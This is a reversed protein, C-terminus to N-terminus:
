ARRSTTGFSCKRCQPRWNKRGCTTCDSLRQTPSSTGAITNLQMEFSSHFEAIVALNANLSHDLKALYKNSSDDIHLCAQELEAMRVKGREAPKMLAIKVISPHIITLLYSAM